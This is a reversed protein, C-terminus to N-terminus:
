ILLDFFSLCCLPAFFLLVFVSRCFVVCLVLDLTVRGGGEFFVCLFFLFSLICCLSLRPQFGTTYDIKNDVIYTEHICVVM